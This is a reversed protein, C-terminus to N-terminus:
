FIKIMNQYAGIKEVNLFFNTSKEGHEYWDCKSRIGNEKEKYLQDLKCKWVFYEFNNFYNALCKLLKQPKKLM